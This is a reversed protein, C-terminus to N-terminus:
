SQGNGNRGAEIDAIVHAMVGPARNEDAIVRIASRVLDPPKEKLIRKAQNGLQARWTATPAYGHTKCEEVYYSVMDQPGTGSPDSGESLERGKGERGKGERGKGEQPVFGDSGPYLQIQGSMAVILPAIYSDSENKIRQHVKFNTIRLVNKGVTTTASGLLGSLLLEEILNSVKVHPRSPFVSLQIQDPDDWLLGECDAFNWLGIFLLQSEISLRCVKADSWYSPKITRIRAM